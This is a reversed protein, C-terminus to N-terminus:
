QTPELTPRIRIRSARPGILMVQIATPPAITNRCFTSGPLGERSQASASARTAAPSHTATAGDETGPSTTGIGSTRTGAEGTLPYM